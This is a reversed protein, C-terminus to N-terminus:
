NLAGAFGQPNRTSMKIWFQEIRSVQWHNALIGEIHTRGPVTKLVSNNVIM